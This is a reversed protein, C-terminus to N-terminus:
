RGGDSCPAVSAPAGTDIEARSRAALTSAHKRFSRKKLWIYVGTVSLLTLVLGSVFVLIRYPLGFVNAMHLAYIWNTFTLGSHQGSPLRLQALSGTNGDVMVFTRGGVTQIDLNTAVRFTYVGQAPSYSLSEVRRVNLGVKTLEATAHEQAQSWDLAPADLPEALRPPGGGMNNNNAPYDLFARTVPAYVRHLNLYVSSWAFMLMLLWTWLGSARHLDFNLRFTSRDWKVWWFSVWRALWSAGTGRTSPSHRRPWTLYLAVFCDLTWLLAIWGLLPGGIPRPLVLNMHLDLVFPMWNIRGQSLDGLRRRALERGTFPDIFLQNFDLQYRKGTAPDVRPIFHLLARDGDKVSVGVVRLRPDLAQGREILAAADLPTGGNARAFLEPAILRELSTSFALISGTLGVIVLFATMALGAYRHLLVLTNRM